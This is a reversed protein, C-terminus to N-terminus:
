QTRQGGLAGCLSRSSTDRSDCVELNGCDVVLWIYTCDQSLSRNPSLSSVVIGLLVEGLARDVSLLQLIRHCSELLPCRNIDWQCYSPLM